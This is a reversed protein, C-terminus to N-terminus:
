NTSHSSASWASLNNLDHQLQVSDQPTSILKLCKTDDTFLYLDSHPVQSPLDNVYVLFLLPDLISGQLVGSVVSLSSSYYANTCVRQIRGSLYEKIWLWWNGKIGINWLKMLLENHPVSDFAKRFDLCIVDCTASHNLSQHVENLFLLLQQNTSHGQRFGFQPGTIVKNSTIFKNLHDYVLHELVKSIICLLSIPRYNTVQSKDGSKHIPTISHCKWELPIIHKSISLSFLHHIPVYLALACSKLLMPATGDIGMSKTTNLSQLAKSVDSQSTSANDITVTPQHFNEMPPLNYSSTTPVSHFFIILFLHETRTLPLLYLELNCGNPSQITQYCLGLTTM